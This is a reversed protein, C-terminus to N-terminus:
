LISSPDVEIKWDSLRRHRLIRRPDKGRLIIQWRYRGHLRSFFCPAPGIMETRADGQAVWLKVQEALANAASEAADQEHHRYELRVLRWFPPYRLERRYAIEHEYFGTFDHHAAAQIAYHDPMYTQLIVQGGLPSRGARGAVQTLVQFTRESARFDPLTLGVEALVVGVLTVLPLDLGKALMQTGILIDAQHSSFQSLIREHAGKKRSTEADWRLTRASPFYEHVMEEVKETGTGLQRIHKGGCEPCKTPVKRVYGCTHCILGDQSRHYTLPKDDRPCRVVYGCDRCFVYTATGRRNLFLIAQQNTNIISEIAERLDNSFISRNGARLEQRMDVVSVGPLGLDATKGEGAKV